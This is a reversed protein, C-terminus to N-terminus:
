GAVWGVYIDTWEFREITLAGSAGALTAASLAVDARAGDGEPTVTVDVSGATASWTAFIQPGGDLIVDDCTADDVATGQDLRLEIDSDPLEYSGEQPAGSTAAADVLGGDIRVLLM